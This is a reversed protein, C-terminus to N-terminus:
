YFNRSLRQSPINIQSTKQTYQMIVLATVLWRLLFPTLLSRHFRGSFLHLFKSM